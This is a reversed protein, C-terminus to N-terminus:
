KESTALGDGTNNVSQEKEVSEASLEIRQEQVRDRQVEEQEIENANNNRKRYWRNGREMIIWLCTILNKNYIKKPKKDV